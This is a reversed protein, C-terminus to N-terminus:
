SKMIESLEHRSFRTIPPSSTGGAGTKIEDSSATKRFPAHSVTVDVKDPATVAMLFRTDWSGVKLDEPYAM